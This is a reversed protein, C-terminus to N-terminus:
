MYSVRLYDIYVTGAEDTPLLEFQDMTGDYPLVATLVHWQNAELDTWWIPTHGGLDFRTIM